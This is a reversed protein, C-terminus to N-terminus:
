GNGYALRQGAIPRAQRQAAALGRICVGKLRTEIRLRIAKLRLLLTRSADRRAEIEAIRRDIWAKRSLLTFSPLQM